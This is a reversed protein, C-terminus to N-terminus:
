TTSSSGRLVSGNYKSFTGDIM